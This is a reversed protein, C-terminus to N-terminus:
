FYVTSSADFIRQIDEETFTSGDCVNDFEINDKLEDITDCSDYLKFWYALFKYAVQDSVAGEEKMLEDVEADTFRKDTLDDRIANIHGLTDRLEEKDMDLKEGSDEATERLADFFATLREDVYAQFAKRFNATLEPTM